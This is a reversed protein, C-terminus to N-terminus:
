SFAETLSPLDHPNTLCFFMWIEVCWFLVRGSLSPPGSATPSDGRRLTLNEMCGSLVWRVLIFGERFPLPSRKRHTLEGGACPRIKWAGPCFGVCWFLVRGSLSPPGSATPSDGGACPRIKWAGPCVGVCWFFGGQFPPPVAQPPHTRGRRLTLNEMCGSLWWYAEKRFIVVNLRLPFLRM